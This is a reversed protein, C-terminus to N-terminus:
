VWKGDIASADYYWIFYKRLVVQDDVITSVSSVVVYVEEGTLFPTTQQLSYSREM